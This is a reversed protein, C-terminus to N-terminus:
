GRHGHMPRVQEQTFTSYAKQAEQAKALTVKLRLLQEDPVPDRVKVAKAEVVPTLPM